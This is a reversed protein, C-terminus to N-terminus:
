ALSGFGARLRPRSIETDDIHEARESEVPAYQARRTISVVEKFGHEFDHHERGATFYGPRGPDTQVTYHGGSPRKVGTAIQGYADHAETVVFGIEVMQGYRASNIRASIKDGVCIQIGNSDQVPSRSACVTLPTLRRGAAVDEEIFRPNLTAFMAIIKQAYQGARVGPVTVLESLLRGEPDVPAATLEDFYSYLSLLDSNM